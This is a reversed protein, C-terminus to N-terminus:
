QAPWADSATGIWLRNWLGYGTGRRFLMCSVRDFNIAALNTVITKSATIFAGGNRSVSTTFQGTFGAPIELRVTIWIAANDTDNFSTNQAEVDYGSTIERVNIYDGTGFNYYEGSLVTVDDTSRLWVGGRTYDCPTKRSFQFQMRLGLAKNLVLGSNRAGDYAARVFASDGNDSERVELSKAYAPTFGGIEPTAQDAIYSGAATNSSDTWVNTDLGSGDGWNLDLPLAPYAVVGVMDDVVVPSGAVVIDQYAPAFTHVASSPTVRYTGDAPLAIEYKGNSDTTTMIGGAM